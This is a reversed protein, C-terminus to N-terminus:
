GTYTPQGSAVVAPLASPLGGPASAPAVAAQPSTAPATPATRASYQPTSSDRSRSVTAWATAESCSEQDVFTWSIVDRSDEGQTLISDATLRKAAAESYIDVQYVGEGCTPEIHYEQPWTPNDATGGNPMLWYVAVEGKGVVISDAEEAYGVTTCSRNSTRYADCDSSTDNGSSGSWTPKAQQDHRHQQTDGSENGHCTAVTAAATPATLALLAITTGIAGLARVHTM